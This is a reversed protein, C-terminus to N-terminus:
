LVRRAVDEDERQEQQETCGPGGAGYEHGDRHRRGHERHMVEHWLAAGEHHGAAQQQGDTGPEDDDARRVHVVDGRGCGDRQAGEGEDAGPAGAPAQATAAPAAKAKASAV